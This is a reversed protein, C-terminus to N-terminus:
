YVYGKIFAKNRRTLPLSKGGATYYRNAQKKAEAMDGTMIANTFRPFQDLGPNFQMDVLATRRNEPLKDFKGKGYMTDVHERAEDTHERIDTKLLERAEKETLRDFSEGEKILHGYGITAGGKESGDDYPYHYYTGHEMRNNKGTGEQEILYDTFNDEEMGPRARVAKNWDAVNLFNFEQKGYAAEDEPPMYQSFKETDGSELALARDQLLDASDELTTMNVKPDFEQVRLLNEQFDEVVMPTPHNVMALYKALLESMGFQRPTEPMHGTINRVGRHAMEHAIVGEEADKRGYVGAMDPTTPNIEIEGTDFYGGYEGETM